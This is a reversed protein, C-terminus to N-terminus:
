IVEERVSIWLTETELLVKGFGDDMQARLRWKRGERGVMWAKVVVVSPTRVPALFSVNLQATYLTTKQEAFQKQRHIEVCVGLTEDLLACMAGGHATDAFGNMGEQLECLLVVDPKEPTRFPRKVDIDNAPVSPIDWAGNRLLLLCHPVTNKSSITQAFFLDSSPSHPKRYRSYFAAARYENKPDQVYHRLHTISGFFELDTQPVPTKDIFDLMDFIDSKSELAM